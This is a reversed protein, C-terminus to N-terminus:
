QNVKELIFILNMTKGSAGTDHRAYLTVDATESYATNSTAALTLIKATTGVTTTSAVIEEGASSTGIKIAALSDSGVARISVIRYGKPIISTLTTNTNAAISGKFQKITGDELPNRVSTPSGSGQAHLNNGSSEIWSYSTSNEAYYEAITGIPTWVVDKIYITDGESINTGWTIRMGDVGVNQTAEITHTTWADKIATFPQEGIINQLASGNEDAVSITPNKAGTYYYKFSIRYRKGAISGNTIDRMRISADGSGAVARLVNDEGNIGDVNGTLTVNGLVDWSDVGASFDSTYTATNSAGRDAYPLSYLEPHGYNYLSTVEAQTLARNYLRFNYIDGDFYGTVGSSHGKGVFFPETNSVDGVDAITGSTTVSQLSSNIYLSLASATRVAIIHYYGDQFTNSTLIYSRDTGDHINFFLANTTNTYISFGQTTVSAQKTLILDLAGDFDIYGYWELSFDGTGFDLNDNDAVSYYDDVGDFSVFSKNVNLDKILQNPSDLDFVGADSSQATTTIAFGLLVIFTIILNKM